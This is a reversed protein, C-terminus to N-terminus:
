LGRRILLGPVKVPHSGEQLLVDGSARSIQGADGVLCLELEAKLGNLDQFVQRCLKRERSLKSSLSFCQVHLFGLNAFDFPSGVAVLAVLVEAGLLADDPLHKSLALVVLSHELVSADNHHRGLQQDPHAVALGVALPVLHERLAQEAVAAVLPLLLFLDVELVRLLERAGLVPALVFAGVRSALVSVLDSVRASSDLNESGVLRPSHSGSDFSKPSVVVDSGALSPVLRAALGGVINLGGDLSRLYTFCDLLYHLLVRVIDSIVLFLFEVDVLFDAM